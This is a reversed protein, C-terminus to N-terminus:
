GRLLAWLYLSILSIGHNEACEKLVHDCGSHDITKRGDPAFVDPENWALVRPTADM